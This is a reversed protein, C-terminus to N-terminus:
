SCRKGIHKKKGQLTNFTINCENADCKYNRTIGQKQLCYVTTRQHLNLSSRSSLTKNCFECLYSM